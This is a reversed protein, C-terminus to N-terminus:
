AAPAAGRALVAAGGACVLAALLFPAGAFHWPQDPRTAFSFIAGMTLPAVIAMLGSLSALAGQAEGQGRNGLGAFMSQVSPNALAGLALIVVGPFMVWPQFAVSYILYGMASLCVGALATRHPGFRRQAPGVLLGQTTASAAGALALLLGNQWIHWHFRMQNALIFSSQQSGLAFWLCCWVIGLRLAAPDVFVGRLAGLANARRWNFPRRREKPLSEALVIFGYILNCAALIARALFPLRISVTGLLGGFAPGLVFGLGFMAGVLGFRRARQEPTSIDALYATAASINGSSAGALARLVFFLWLKPVFATGLAALGQMAVSLLLVPRRGYRDSLGGLVPAALFQAGSFTALIAGLWFSAAAGSVHGIRMVLQPEVPIILGFGLADLAITILVFPTAAPRNLRM